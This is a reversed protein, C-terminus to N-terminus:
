SDTSGFASAGDVQGDSQQPMPLQAHLKDKGIALEIATYASTIQKDLM